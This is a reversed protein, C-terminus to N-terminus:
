VGFCCELGRDNRPTNAWNPRGLQDYRRVDRMPFLSSYDSKARSYLLFLKFSLSIQSHYGHFVFNNPFYSDHCRVQFRKFNTSGVTPFAVVTPLMFVGVKMRVPASCIPARVSITPLSGMAKNEVGALRNPIDVLGHYPETNRFSIHDGIGLSRM